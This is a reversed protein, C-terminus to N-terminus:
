NKLSFNLTSLKIQKLNEPTQFQTEIQQLNEPKNEAFEEKKKVVFDEMKRRLVYNYGKTLESRNHKIKYLRQKLLKNKRELSQRRKEEQKQQYKYKRTRLLTSFKISAPIQQKNSFLYKLFNLDQKQQDQKNINNEDNSDICDNAM